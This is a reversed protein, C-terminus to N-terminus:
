VATQFERCHRVKPAGSEIVPGFKQSITRSASRIAARTTITPNPRLPPRSAGGDRSARSRPPPVPRWAPRWGPWRWRGPGGRGPPASAPRRYPTRAQARKPTWGGAARPRDNGPARAGPMRPRSSGEPQEAHVLLLRRDARERQEGEEVDHEVAAPARRPHDRPRQVPRLAEQDSGAQEHQGQKVHHVLDRLDRRVAFGHVAGVHRM